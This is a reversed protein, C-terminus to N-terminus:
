PQLRPSRRWTRRGSCGVCDIRSACTWPWTGMEGYHGVITGVMGRREAISYHERVRVTTGVHITQPKM